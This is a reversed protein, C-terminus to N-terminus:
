PIIENGNSDYDITVNTHHRSLRMALAAARQVHEPLLALDGLVRVQPSLCSAIVLLVQREWVCM